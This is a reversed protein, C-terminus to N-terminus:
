LQFTIKDKLQSDVMDNTVAIFKDSHYFTDSCQFDVVAQSSLKDLRFFNNSQHIVIM